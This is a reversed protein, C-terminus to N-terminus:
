RLPWIVTLLRGNVSRQPIPGWHRSDRSDARHDGLVYLDGAPVTVPGGCDITRSIQPDGPLYRENLATGDRYVQGDRCEITDGPLGVVRKITHDDPADPIPFEIIDGRAFGTMRFGVKDLLFRGAVPVTPAMATSSMYRGTLAFQNIVLTAPLSLVATAVVARQIRVARPLDSVRARREHWVARLGGAAWRLAEWRGSTRDLEALVAEGWPGGRERRGRVAAVLIARAARRM